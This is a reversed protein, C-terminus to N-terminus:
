PREIRRANTPFLSLYMVWLRLRTVTKTV